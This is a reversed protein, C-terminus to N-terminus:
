PQIWEEYVREEKLHEGEVEQPTGVTLAHILGNMEGVMVTHLIKNEPNHHVRMDIQGDMGRWVHFGNEESGEFTVEQALRPLMRETTARFTGGTDSVVRQGNFTINRDDYAVVVLHNRANRRLWELLKEPHGEDSDYAYNSDLFAIRTVHDPISDVGNLYGFTLSGWTTKEDRPFAEELLGAIRASSNEHDRRWSPWSRPNAELYVTVINRDPFMQRLVRTQAGIHQIDFHWDLDEAMQRGITWEISNGNPLAFFVVETPLDSDHDGALNVHIQADPEVKWEKIWEHFHPSREFGPFPPGSPVGADQAAACALLAAPLLAILVSRILM